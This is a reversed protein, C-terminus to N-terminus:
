QTVGKFSTTVHVTVGRKGTTKKPVGRMGTVQISMSRDGGLRLESMFDRRNGRALSIQADGWSGEKNGLSESDISQLM